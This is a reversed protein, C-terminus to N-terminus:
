VTFAFGAREPSTALPKLERMGDPIVGQVVAPVGPVEPPRSSQLKRFTRLRSFVAQDLYLPNCVWSRTCAQCPRLPAPDNVHLLVMSLELSIKEVPAPPLVTAPACFGNLM